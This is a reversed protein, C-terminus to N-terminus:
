DPDYELAEKVAQSWAALKNEYKLTYAPSTSPMRHFIFRADQRSVLRQYLQQAAAGNFIVHRIGPCRQYLFEFDNPQASRIASDLSGERLCSHVTDWLAIRHRLLMAKKAQIDQPTEEGLIQAMMPWFANRPHAYYFSQHLSEVSPMSGVILLRADERYVPAFGYIRADM